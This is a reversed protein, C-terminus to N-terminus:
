SSENQIFEKHHQNMPQNGVNQFALQSIINNGSIHEKDRPPNYRGCGM